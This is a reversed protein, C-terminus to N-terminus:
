EITIVTRETVTKGNQRVTVRMEYQGPPFSDLPTSAIYPILGRSDPAPLKPEGHGIVKGDQLFEIDLDPASPSGPELYVTFFYSLVSGPGGGATDQLGPSIKEAAVQFPDDASATLDPSSSRVRVLSSLGVSESVPPILLFSKRASVKETERDIVATELTYRGSPLPAHQTYVFHGMKFGALKELPGQRPIDQSFKRLVSGQADKIMALVSFHTQYAHNVEDRTFQINELPVDIVVGVADGTASRFHFGASRFPIDQPLTTGALANLLPVEYPQVSQGPIFPLAYYGNRSQVRVEPRNVIVAIKRFHGDYNRIDPSYALEYHTDLDETVRHLGSRLDSNAIMFGGTKQSLEDLSNQTNARIAVQSRSEATAQDRTVAGSHAPQQSASGAAAQGLMSRGLASPSFSGLSRADIGYVSVNARNANGILAQFEDKYDPEISIGECFFLLTKRGPLRYQPPILAELALLTRRSRLPREVDENFQGMDHMMAAFMDAAPSGSVAAPAVIQDPEALYLSPTSSTVRAVAKRVLDKDTTYQQLMHLREDISFVGFFLNPGTETKLLDEMAIRVNNRADPGLPDFALTVIRIERLPDIAAPKEGTVATM